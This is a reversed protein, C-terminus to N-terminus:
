EGEGDGVGGHRDRGVGWMGCVVVWVGCGVGWLGVQFGFSLVRFEFGQSNLAFGWVRFEVVLGPEVHEYAEVEPGHVGRHSM